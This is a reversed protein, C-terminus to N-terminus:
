PNKWKDFVVGVDDGTLLASLMVIANSQIYKAKTIVDAHGDHNSCISSINLQQTIFALDLWTTNQWFSGRQWAVLRWKKTMSRQSNLRWCAMISWKELIKVTHSLLKTRISGFVFQPSRWYNRSSTLGCGEALPFSLFQEERDITLIMEWLNAIWHNKREGM